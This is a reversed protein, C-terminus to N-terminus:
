KICSLLTKTGEAYFVIVGQNTRNQTMLTPVLLDASEDSFRHYQKGGNGPLYSKDRTLPRDGLLAQSASVVLIMAEEAGSSKCSFVSDQALTPSSILLTSIVLSLLKM